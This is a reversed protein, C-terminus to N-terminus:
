WDLAVELKLTEVLGGQGHRANWFHTLWGTLPQIEQLYMSNKFLRIGPLEKHINWVYGGVGVTEPNTTCRLKETVTQASLM